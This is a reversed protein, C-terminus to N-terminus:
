GEGERFAALTSASSSLRSQIDGLRAPKSAAGPRNRIDLIRNLRLEDAEQAAVVASGINGPGLLREGSLYEEEALPIAAASMELARGKYGALRDPNRDRIAARAALLSLESHDPAEDALSYVIDFHRAALAIRALRAAPGASELGTVTDVSVSRLGLDLAAQRAQGALAPAVSLLDAAIDPKELLVDLVALRSMDHESQLARSMTDALALFVQPDAGAASVAPNRALAQLQEYDNSAALGSLLAQFSAERSFDPATFDLQTLAVQSSLGRLPGPLAHGDATLVAVIHGARRPNTLHVGLAKVASSSGQRAEFLTKLFALEASSAVAEQSFAAIVREALLLNESALLEPMIREAVAVQLGFPLERFFNMGDELRRIGARDRRAMQMVAQWYGGEGDCSVGGTVGAPLRDPASALFAALAGLDGPATPGLRQLTQWAEAFLGFAMQLRATALLRDRDPLMAVQAVAQEFDEYSQLGSLDAFSLDSAKDCPTGAPLWDSRDSAIPPQGETAIDPEVSPELMGEEIAYEVIDDLRLRLSAPARVLETATGQGQEVADEASAPVPALIWILLLAARNM